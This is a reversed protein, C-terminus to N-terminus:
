LKPNLTSKLNLLNLSSPKPNLTLVFFCLYQNRFTSEELCAETEYAPGAHITEMETGSSSGSHSEALVTPSIEAAEEHESEEGPAEAPVDLAEDVKEEKLEGGEEKFGYEPVEDFGPDYAPSVPQAPLPHVPEAPVYPAPVPGAPVEPAPVVPQPVEPAPVVPQPVEPAPRVVPQPVEPAAPVVPQPVGPAAAAAAKAAPVRWPPIAKAPAAKSPAAKPVGASKAKAADQERVSIRSGEYYYPLLRKSYDRHGADHFHLVCSCKTADARGRLIQVWTPYVGHWGCWEHLAGETVYWPLGGVWLGAM